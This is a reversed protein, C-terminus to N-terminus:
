TKSYLPFDCSNHLLLLWAKTNHKLQHDPCLTKSRLLDLFSTPVLFVVYGTTSQRDNPYGAWNVDCYVNLTLDPDLQFSLGMTLTGEVYRLIYKLAQWHM